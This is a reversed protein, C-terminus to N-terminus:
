LAHRGALLLACLAPLLAAPMALAGIKLFDVFGIRINDRRLEILWLISALSGTISLNPGLDVGILVAAANLGHVNASKLTAGAVLGVPLNNFINNAFATASGLVFVGAAHSHLHEAWVLAANLAHLSGISQTAEVLIFLGAVLAITSWSIRRLLPLPNERATLSVAIATVLASVCTPLGLDRDYASATLLSLIVLGLGGLVLRGHRSLQTGISPEASPEALAPEPLSELLTERFWYRLVLFTAVISLLSPLLFAALWRALSPMNGQFVVLNAPNSIPLVFSAANAIMVCAFLHPLASARARRVVALVAPTLVVATADNSLCVTVIIGALYLLAFLRSASGRARSVALAALWDFVGHSRALESLLMMGILFLYVDVGKRVGDMATRVSILRLVILLLSGAGIWYFEALGRPRLLMLLISASVILLLLVHAPILTM